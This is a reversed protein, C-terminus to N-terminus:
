FLVASMMFFVASGDLLDVKLFIHSFALVNQLLDFIWCVRIIVSRLFYLHLGYVTFLPM